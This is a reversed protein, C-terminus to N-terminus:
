ANEEKILSFRTHNQIPRGKLRLPDAIASKFTPYKPSSRSSFLPPLRQLAHAPADARAQAFQGVIPRLLDPKRAEEAVGSHSNVFDQARRRLPGSDCRGASMDKQDLVRALDIILRLGPALAAQACDAIARIDAQEHMRRQRHVGLSASKQPEGARRDPPPGSDLLVVVLAQRDLFFLAVPPDGRRQLRSGEQARSRADGEDGIPFRVDIFQEGTHGVLLGMHQDARRVIPRQGLDVAPKQGLDGGLRFGAAQGEIQRTTRPSRRALHSQRRAEARDRQALRRAACVSAIRGLQREIEDLCALDVRRQAFLRDDPTQQGGM